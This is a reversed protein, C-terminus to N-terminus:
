QLEDVFDVILKFVEPFETLPLQAPQDLVNHYATTGGLTYFFFAPVGKESFPYHDSNAARGRSRVQPLYQHQENIQRLLNFQTPHIAGNVVMIGNDGTGVLDLNILFKIQALPFLPHQVYYSSGVLGAEEAAFAMFAMSYAPQHEPQSFYNALELLMATGSANDNAGPFYVKKGQGGLHDYHASFVLFSDPAVSGKVFAIVNQTKYDPVFGAQINYTLRKARVPWADKQVELVPVTNQQQAVTTLLGQQLVVHVKAKQLLQQHFILLQSIQRIHQQHYVLAKRSFNQSFFKRAVAKDSFILTDLPLTKATGKASPSGAQVVFDLGPLLEKGNVKLYPTATITNIPLTFSQYYSSGIPELGAEHFTHRIYDAAKTDGEFIYGRGHMYGSTLTDLVQRVRQMNQAHAVPFTASVFSLLLLLLLRKM